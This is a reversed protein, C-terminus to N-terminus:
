CSMDRVVVFLFILMLASTWQRLFSAGGVFCNPSVNQFDIAPEIRLGTASWPVEM